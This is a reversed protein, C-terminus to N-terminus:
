GKRRSAVLRMKRPRRNGSIGSFTFYINNEWIFSHIVQRLLGDWVRLGHVPIINAQVQQESVSQQPPRNPDDKPDLTAAVVGIIGMKPVTKHTRPATHYISKKLLAVAEPQSLLMFSFIDSIFLKQV